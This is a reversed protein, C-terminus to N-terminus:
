DLKMVAQFYVGHQTHYALGLALQESVAYNGGLSFAIGPTTEPFRTRYWQDEGEKKALVTDTQSYYGVTGFATLKNFNYHYGFDISLVLTTYSKKSDPAIDAENLTIPNYNPINNAFGSLGFQASFNTYRYGAGVGFGPIGYSLQFLLANDFLEFEDEVFEEDEYYEDDDYYEEDQAHMVNMMATSLILLFFVVSFYKFYDKMAM